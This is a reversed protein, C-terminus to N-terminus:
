FNFGAAFFLAQRFGAGIGEGDFNPGFRFAALGVSRDQRKEGPMESDFGLAQADDPASFGGVFEDGQQSALFLLFDRSGRSGLPIIEGDNM